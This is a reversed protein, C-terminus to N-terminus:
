KDRLGELDQIAIGEVNRNIFWGPLKHVPSLKVSSRLLDAELLQPVLNALRNPRAM